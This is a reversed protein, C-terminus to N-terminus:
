IKRSKLFSNRVEESKAFFSDQKEIDGQGTQNKWFTAICIANSRGDNHYFFSIRSNGKYVILEYIRSHKKYLKVHDPNRVRDNSGILRLVKMIAKYEQPNRIKIRNIFDFTPSKGNIELARLRHISEWEEQVGPIKLLKYKLM